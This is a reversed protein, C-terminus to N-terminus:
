KLGPVFNALSCANNSGIKVPKQFKSLLKNSSPEHKKTNLSLTLVLEPDNDNTVDGTSFISSM